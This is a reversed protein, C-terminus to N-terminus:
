DELLLLCGCKMFGLPENAHERYGKAQGEGIGSSDLECVNLINDGM